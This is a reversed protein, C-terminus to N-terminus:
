SKDAEVNLLIQANVDTHLHLLVTFQGIERISGQPIRVESKNVQHGHKALIECIDRPGISGFLKGAEGVRASTSVMLNDLAAARAQAHVLREDVLRQLDARRAEFEALNIKTAPKAIGKPILYNRAFGPKVSVKDGMKGLNVVKDLLIVEVM